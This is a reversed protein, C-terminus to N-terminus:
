YDLDALDSRRSDGGRGNRKSSSDKDGPTSDETESSDENNSDDSKKDRTDDNISRREEERDENDMETQERIQAEAEKRWEGARRTYTGSPYDDEAKQFLAAAEKLKGQGFLIIGKKILAPQDMTSDANTLVRNYIKYAMRKNGLAYFSEAEFYMAREATRADPSSSLTKRFFAIARKFDGKRYCRIGSIYYDKKLKKILKKRRVPDLNSIGVLYDDYYDYAVLAQGRMGRIANAQGLEASLNDSNYNLAVKFNERARRRDGRRLYFAGLATHIKSKLARSQTRVLVSELLIKGESEYNIQLLVKGLSYEIKEMLDQDAPREAKLARFHRLAARKDGMKELAVGLGYRAQLTILPDINRSVILNFIVQAQRASAPSNQNLYEEAERLRVREARFRSDRERDERELLERERRTQEGGEIRTEVSYIYLAIGMALLLLGVTLINKQQGNM